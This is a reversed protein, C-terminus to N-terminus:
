TGHTPPTIPLTVTFTTGENERSVFSVTGDLMTVLNHVLYLGLGTGDTVVNRANDARFFKKFIHEQVAIPIGMGTDQVDIKVTGGERKARIAISGKAPTYRIANSILNAVVEKLSNKDSHIVADGSCQVEVTIDKKQYWFAHEQCVEEILEKLHVESTELTTTNGETRSVSLMTHITEALSVAYGLAPELMERQKESLEGFRGKLLLETSLRLATVPTRLQHSALSIFEKQRKDLESEKTIDRFVEIAGIVQGEMRIPTVTVKVPFKTGDKRVYFTTTTTTTTTPLNGRLSRNIPRQALPVANGDRDLMPIVEVLPKGIVEANNWGLLREFAPNTLTIIGQLDTAILGDGISLLMSEDEAKAKQLKQEVEKKDTILFRVAMYQVPRGQENLIPAITTDVWYFTGDKAKNNIEGRWTRGSSITQWLDDFIAQPQHGSKLIRHNQGILEERRYKSVEVFKENAFVINGKSDTISVLASENLANLTAEDKAKAVRLKKTADDVHAEARQKSSALTYFVVTILTSVLIGVLLIGLMAFRSVPTEGYTPVATFTLLWPRGAVYVTRTDTFRPTEKTKLKETTDDFLTHESGDGTGDTVRLAIDTIGDTGFIGEFFDISRFPSYTYGVINNRREDVTSAPAGNRYCPVYILFGPQVDEDIEQVLTIRGSMKPRGSDRTQEMASRRTTESFMDYGFAQKNREDFPELYIIASYLTRDGPPRISYEPFGEARISATHREKQEPKVFISYGVGQIGPYNKQIDLADVYAKFEDREVSTSAAFLGRTGELVSVYIKVREEITQTAREVDNVFNSQADRTFLTSVLSAFSITILVSGLVMGSVTLWGGIRLSYADRERYVLYFVTSAALFLLVTHVSAFFFSPIALVQLSGFLFAIFAVLSFFFTTSVLIETIRVRRLFASHASLPVLGMLLFSIATYQAMRALTPYTDLAGRLLLLDVSLSLLGIEELLRLAGAFAVFCAFLVAAWRTSKRADLPLIAGLLVFCIATLPNMANAIPIIRVLADVGLIWGLLSLGGICSIFIGMGDRVREITVMTKCYSVFGIGRLILYLGVLFIIIPLYIELTLVKTKEWQMHEVNAQVSREHFTNSFHNWPNLREHTRLDYYYAITDDKYKIIRGTLPEVWLQLYPELEVGRTVGMGPLHGLNATQDITVGEYRTEYRYVPLGYLTEKGTFEMHAPGDYNIHWYTFADGAQLHRPAFLYGDRPKDGLTPVHAGTVPDIGYEREVSFIPDDDPTRVDFVNRVILDGDKKGTVGYYFRTKSYIAGDYAQREENYFDDTSVIDASYYFDDPLKELVPVIRYLWIPLLLVLIFGILVTYKRSFM